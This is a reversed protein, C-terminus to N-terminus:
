CTMPDWSLLFNVRLPLFLPNIDHRVVDALWNAAKTAEIVHEKCKDQWADYENFLQQYVKDDEIWGHSKYFREEVLTDDRLRSPECHEMFMQIAENVEYTLKKLASELEPLTKPWVAGLIKNLFKFLREHADEDWNMTTSVARSAWKDWSDFQCSEAAADILDAYIVDQATKHIDGSESLTQEV